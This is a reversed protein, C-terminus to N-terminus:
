VTAEVVRAVALRGLCASARVRPPAYVRDRSRGPARPRPGARHREDALDPSSPSRPRSARAIADIDPMADYDGLLGFNMAGNYSMIAIALAHDKPLFAVPFVDLLERGRM